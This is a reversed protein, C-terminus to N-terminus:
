PSHLCTGMEQNFNLYSINDQSHRQMCETSLLREAWRCHPLTRNSKIRLRQAMARRSLAPRCKGAPKKSLTLSRTALSLGEGIKGRRLGCPPDRQRADSLRAHSARGLKRNSITGDYATCFAPFNEGSQPRFSNTGNVQTYCTEIKDPPWRPPITCRLACPNPM